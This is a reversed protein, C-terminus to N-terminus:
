GSCVVVSAVRVTFYECSTENLSLGTIQTVDVAIAFDEGIGYM